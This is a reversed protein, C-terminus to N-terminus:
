NPGTCVAMPIVEGAVLELFVCIAIALLEPVMKDVYIPLTEMVIANIFMLTVLMWHHYNTTPLIKDARKKVEPDNKANIELSL